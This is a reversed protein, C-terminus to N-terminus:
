NTTVISISLTVYTDYRCTPRRRRHTLAESRERGSNVHRFTRVGSLAAEESREKGEKEKLEENRPTTRREGRKRREEALGELRDDSEESTGGGGGGGEENDIEDEQHSSSSPLSLFLSSYISAYFARSSPSFVSVRRVCVSTSFSLSSLPFLSFM